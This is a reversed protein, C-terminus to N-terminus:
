HKPVGIGSLKYTAKGGRNRIALCINHAVMNGDIRKSQTCIWKGDIWLEEQNGNLTDGPIKTVRIEVKMTFGDYCDVAPKDLVKVAPNSALTFGLLKQLFTKLDTM